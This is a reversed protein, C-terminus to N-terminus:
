KKVEPLVDLAQVSYLRTGRIADNFEKVTLQVTITAGAYEMLAYLIHRQKLDQNNKEPNMEFAWPEIAYAFLKDVNAVALWHAKQDFSAYLAKDSVLKTMSDSSLNARLNTNRLNILTGTERIIKLIALSEKRNKAIRPMQAMKQVEDVTGFM